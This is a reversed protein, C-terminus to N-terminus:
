VLQPFHFFTASLPLFHYADTTTRAVLTLVGSVKTVGDVIILVKRGNFKRKLKKSFIKFRMLDKEEMVPGGSAINGKPAPQFQSQQKSLQPSAPPLSDLSDMSSWGGVGSGAGNAGSDSSVERSFPPTSTPTPPGDDTEKKLDLELAVEFVDWINDVSGFEYHTDTPESM